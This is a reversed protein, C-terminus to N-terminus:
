RECINRWAQLASCVTTMEEESLYPHWPLGLAYEGLMETVPLAPAGDPGISPYSSFAPHGPLAPWYWRRSEIGHAALRASIAQAPQALRLVLNAPPNHANHAGGQMAAGSITSLMASYTRWLARRKQQLVPWRQWQALAVAAAYESLKGNTGPQSVVGGEFGFNTLRRVRAALGADQTVFLGGEGIGFPKTAHMSLCLSVGRGAAQNGFAAAADILVPIGTEAVFDDWALADVGVGFTTVPMVLALPRRAAVARAIVPTLQWCHADVDSFVPTLRNRLLATASAPFTYAPLLVAGGEPLDHAQVALELAMTGSSVAVVHLGPDTRLDSLPSPWDRALALELERVLVGQNTYQRAADIRELWPLLASAPPIDPVLLKIRQKGHRAPDSM